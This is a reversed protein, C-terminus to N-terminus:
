GHYSARRGRALCKAHAVSYPCRPPALQSYHAAGVAHQLHNIERSKLATAPLLQRLRWRSRGPPDFIAVRLVRTQHGLGVCEWAFGPVAGTLNISRAFGCWFSRVRIRFVGILCGAGPRSSSSTFGSFCGGSGQRRCGVPGERNVWRWAGVGQGPPEVRCRKPARKRQVGQGFRPDAARRCNRGGNATGAHERCTPAAPKDQPTRTHKFSPCRM